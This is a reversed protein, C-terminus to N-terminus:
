TTSPPAESVDLQDNVPRPMGFLEGQFLDIGDAVLQDLQQDSRIYEAATQIGRARCLNVVMRVFSRQLPDDAAYGTVIGDLKIMALPFDTLQRLSCVGSGFDDLAVAIGAAQLRELRAQVLVPPLTLCAPSIEIIIRDENVDNRELSRFVLDPFSDTAFTERTVNVSLRLGPRVALLELTRTIMLRDFRELLGAAQGTTFFEARSVKATAGSDFRALAEHFAPRRDASRVVPQLWVEWTGLDMSASLDGLRSRIFTQAGAVVLRHGGAAAAERAATEALRVALDHDGDIVRALGVSLGLPCNHRIVDGQIGGVMRILREGLARVRRAPLDKVLLLFAGGSLRAPMAPWPFVQMIASAVRAFVEDVQAFSLEAANAGSLDLSAHLVFTARTAPDDREMLRWLEWRDILGTFPDRTGRRRGVIPAADILPQLILVVQAPGNAKLGAHMPHTAGNADLVRLPFFAPVDTAARELYGVFTALDNPEVLPLVSQSPRPYPGPFFWIDGLECSAAVVGERDLEIRMPGLRRNPIDPHHPIRGLAEAVHWCLMELSLSTAVVEVPADAAPPTVPASTDAVLLIPVGPFLLTAEAVRSAIDFPAVLVVLMQAPGAAARRAEMPGRVESVAVPHSALAAVLDTGLGTGHTWLVIPPLALEM